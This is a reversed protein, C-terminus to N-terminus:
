VSICKHCKHLVRAINKRHFTVKNTKLSSRTGFTHRWAQPNGIKRHTNAHRLTLSPKVAATYLPYLRISLQMEASVQFSCGRREPERGREARCWTDRSQRCFPGTHVSTLTHTHTHTHTLSLSLSLSHAYTHLYTYHSSFSNCCGLKVASHHNFTSPSSFHQAFKFHM